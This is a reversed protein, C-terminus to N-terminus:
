IKNFIICFVLGNLKPVFDKLFPSMHKYFLYEDQHFIKCLSNPKYTLFVNHGGVQHMFPELIVGNKTHARCISCNKNEFPENTTYILQDVSKDSLTNEPIQNKLNM